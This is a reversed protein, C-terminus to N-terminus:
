CLGLRRREENTRRHAARIPEPLRYRPCAALTWRIAGELDIGQGPSVFVPKVGRRTRLVAGIMGGEPARLPAWAGKEDAPEEAEGWLRSKACGVSPVGLRLGLHSAIGLGRPHATGQGDFLILDPMKSLGALAREILPGERFSLLGPVYPFTMEGVVMSEEVIELDPLRFVVAGAVGSSGRWAHSIDVGAITKPSRRLPSFRLDERLRRQLAVAEAPSLKWPHQARAAIVVM